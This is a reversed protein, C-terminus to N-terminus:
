LLDVAAALHNAFQTNLRKVEANQRDSRERESRVRFDPDAYVSVGSSVWFVYRGRKFVLHSDAYGWTYGGDGVDDVLKAERTDKAFTQLSQRAEEVSNLPVISIQTGMNPFSWSEILVGKSGQIPEVRKHEWGPMKTALYHSIADELKDLEASDQILVVTPMLFFLSTLILNKM